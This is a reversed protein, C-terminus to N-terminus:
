RDPQDEKRPDAQQRAYQEARHDPRPQRVPHDAMHALAADGREDRQERLRDIQHHAGQAGAQRDALRDDAGAVLDALRDGAFQAADLVAHPKSAIEFPHKQVMAWRMSVGSNRKKTMAKLTCRSVPPLRASVRALRDSTRRLLRCIRALTRAIALSVRAVVSIRPPRGTTTMIM